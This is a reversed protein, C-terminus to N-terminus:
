VSKAAEEAREIITIAQRNEPIVMINATAAAGILSLKGEASLMQDAVANELEETVAINIQHTPRREVKRWTGNDNWAEAEEPPVDTWEGAGAKSKFVTKIEPIKSNILTRVDKATGPVTLVRFTSYAPGLIVNDDYIDVVDGLYSLGSKLTGDGIMVIQAM